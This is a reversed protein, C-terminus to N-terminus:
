NGLSRDLIGLASKPEVVGGITVPGLPAQEIEIAILDFPSGIVGSRTGMSWSLLVDGTKIGSAGAEASRTMSEVVVGAEARAECALAEVILSCTLIWRLILM